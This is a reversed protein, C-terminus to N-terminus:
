APPRLPVILYKSNEAEVGRVTCPSRSNNFKLIVREDEIVRL